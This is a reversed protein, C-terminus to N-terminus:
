LESVDLTIWDSRQQGHGSRQLTVTYHGGAVYAVHWSPEHIFVWSVLNPWMVQFLGGRIETLCLLSCSSGARHCRWDLLSINADTRCQEQQFAPKLTFTHSDADMIWTCNSNLECISYDRPKNQKRKLIKKWPVCSTFM